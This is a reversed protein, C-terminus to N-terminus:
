VTEGEQMWASM